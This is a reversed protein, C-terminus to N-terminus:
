SERGATARRVTAMMEARTGVGLKQRIKAVHHEVTKPSIFLTAGVERHTKGETVLVAVEAERESLGLAVLGDNGADDAPDSVLSRAAELLRRAAQPDAHDLATQGLLRSAEWGDGVPALAEMVRLASAEDVSGVALDAWHRAALARARNRPDTPGLQEIADAANLVGDDDRRALALQLSLWHAASPGAGSAPMALLQESLATAVPSVRREDGLRAGATVLEVVPDFLLWSSSPRLLAAESRAWADRLRQTDGSRRAIAADIASVLLRDRQPWTPADGAEVVALADASSGGLLGVYASLLRHTRAEGAGGSDLQIARDLLSAAAPLDGVWLAALAGVAHSTIGLPVEWPARDADDAALVLQELGDDARGDIVSQLGTVLRLPLLGDHRADGRGPTSGSDLDVPRGLCTDAFAQMEAGVPRDTAHSWRLDRVDIGFGLRALQERQSRTTTEPPALRGLVDHRGAWFAATAEIVTLDAGLPGVEAARELLELCRPGDTVALRRAASTLIDGHDPLERTGSLVHEIAAGPDTNVLLRALQDHRQRRRRSTLGHRIARRVIPVTWGNPGVAGAARVATETADPDDFAAAHVEVPRAPDTDLASLELLELVSDGHREVRARVAAATQDPLDDLDGDFGTSVADAVWGAMGSTVDLLATVLDTSSARGTLGSVVTALGADDLRDLREVSGVAQVADVFARHTPSTPWPTMSVVVPVNSIVEILADLAEIEAWQADDIVLMAPGAEIADHVMGATLPRYASCPLWVAEDGALLRLRHTRGTGGVGLVVISGGGAGASETM